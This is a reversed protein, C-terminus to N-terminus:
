DSEHRSRVYAACIARPDRLWTTEHENCCRLNFVRKPMQELCAGAVRWDRVAETASQVGYKMQMTRSPWLSYQDGACKFLIGAEVLADAIAKDNM